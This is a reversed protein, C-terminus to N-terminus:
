SEKLIKYKKLNSINVEDVETCTCNVNSIYRSLTQVPELSIDTLKILMNGETASRLLKINNKHLFDDVKERYAKETIYDNYENFREKTNFQNFLDLHTNFYKERDFFIKNEDSLFSLLTSLSFQRFNNHGNRRINPYRNGLTAGVTEALMRKIGGVTNNFQLRLQGDESSLFIDHFLTMLPAAIPTLASRKGVANELQVAYKYFVGSAITFDTFTKSIITETENAVDVSYLTEWKSFNDEHSSRKIKITGVFPAAITATIKVYADEHLMEANITMANILGVVDSTKFLFNKEGHFSSTTTYEIKLKYTLNSSFESIFNVYIENNEAKLIPTEEIITGSLNDLVTVKYEKLRDVSDVSQYVLKGSLTLTNGQIQVPIGETYGEFQRLQLTHNFIPNLLVVTSWESFYNLNNALWADSPSTTGPDPAAADTFRLQVKYIKDPIFASGQIDSPSLEIYYKYNTTIGNDKQLSVLKIGTPYLSKNLETTNTNLNVVSIQINKITQETTTAPLAFYIRTSSTYIFGPSWTLVIPPYLNNNFGAM